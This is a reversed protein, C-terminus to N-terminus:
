YYFNKLYSVKKKEKDKVLAGCTLAVLRMVTKLLVDLFSPTQLYSSDQLIEEKGVEYNGGHSHNYLVLPHKKKNNPYAFYAPVMEQTNLTLMLTEITYTEKIKKELLEAHITDSAWTKGLLRKLEERLSM